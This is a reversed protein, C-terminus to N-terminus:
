KWIDTTLLEVSNGYPDRFYISQAPYAREWQIEKEIAVGHKSLRDLWAQYDEPKIGLGIHGAGRAGHSPVMRGPQDSKSPDFILLVHQDDVRFLTMLDSKGAPMDLGLVEHYFWVAEEISNTYLVTELISSPKMNLCYPMCRLFNRYLIAM